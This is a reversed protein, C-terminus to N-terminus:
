CTYSKLPQSETSLTLILDTDNLRSKIIQERYVAVPATNPDITTDPFSYVKTEVTGTLLGNNLSALEGITIAYQVSPTKSRLTLSRISASLGSTEHPQGLAAPYFVFDLGDITVSEKLQTQLRLLPLLLYTIEVTSIILIQERYSPIETEKSSLIKFHRARM